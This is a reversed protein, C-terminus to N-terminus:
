EDDLAETVQESTIVGGAVKVTPFPKQAPSSITPDWRLLRQIIEHREASPLKKFQELLTEAIASM